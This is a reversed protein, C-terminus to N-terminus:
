HFYRKYNRHYTLHDIARANIKKAPNGGYVCWPETNKTVVAGLAVVSGRGITIGPLVYAGTFVSADDEIVVPERRTRTCPGGDVIEKAIAGANRKANRGTLGHHELAQGLFFM